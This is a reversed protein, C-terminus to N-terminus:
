LEIKVFLVELVFNTGEILLHWLVLTTHFVNNRKIIQSYSDTEHRVIDKPLDKEKQVEQDREPLLLTADRDQHIDEVMIPHVIDEQHVEEVLVTDQDIRIRTSEVDEAEEVTLTVNRKFDLMGIL